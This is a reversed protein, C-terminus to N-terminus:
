TKNRKQHISAPFSNHFVPVKPSVVKIKKTGNKEKREKKKEKKKWRLPNFIPSM